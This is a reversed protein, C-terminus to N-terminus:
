FLYKQVFIAKEDIKGIEIGQDHFLFLDENKSLMKRSLIKKKNNFFNEKIYEIINSPFIYCNYFYKINETNLIPPSIKINNLLDQSLKPIFNLTDKKSWIGTLSDILNNINKYDINNNQSIKELLNSLNQYNFYKKFEKMWEINILYYLKNEEIVDERKDNELLSKEFYM